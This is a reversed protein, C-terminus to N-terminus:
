LTWDNKDKKLPVVWSNKVLVASTVSYSEQPIDEWGGLDSSILYSGTPRGQGEPSILNSSAITASPAERVSCRGLSFPTQLTQMRRGESDTRLPRSSFINQGDEPQPNRGM